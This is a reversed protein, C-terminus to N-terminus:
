KFAAVLEFLSEAISRKGELRPIWHVAMGDQCGAGCMNTYIGRQAYHTYDIGHAM